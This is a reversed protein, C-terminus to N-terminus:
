SVVFMCINLKKPELGTRRLSWNKWTIRKEGEFTLSRMSEMWPRVDRPCLQFHMLICYKANAIEFNERPYCGQVRTAPPAVGERMLVARAQAATATVWM